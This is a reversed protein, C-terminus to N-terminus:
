PGGRASLGTGRLATEDPAPAAGDLPVGALELFVDALNPEHVRISRPECGAELLRACLEPLAAGGAPSAFRAGQPYLALTRVQPQPEFSRSPMKGSVEIVTEKALGAILDRPPGDAILRGGHLFAVRSCATEVFAPDNSAVLAAAGRSAADAMAARLAAVGLPDLGLTPEDLLLLDASAAVAEALALRRRMGHSYISVREVARDALGFDRLASDLAGAAAEGGHGRLGLLRLVNERGPLSEQFPTRDFVVAVRRRLHSASDSPENPFLRASGEAPPLVGAVIRLLTTKGSGNPGMVGLVEGAALQLTLGVLVPPGDAYRHGLGCLALVPGVPVSPGTTM